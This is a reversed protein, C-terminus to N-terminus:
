WDRPVIAIVKNRGRGAEIAEENAIQNILKDIEAQVDKLQAEAKGRTGVNYSQAALAIREEMKLYNNLRKRYIELRTM